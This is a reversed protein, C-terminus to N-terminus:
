HCIIDSASQWSEEASGTAHAAVDFVAVTPEAGAARFMIVGGPTETSQRMEELAERSDWVSIIRSLTSDPASHVLFTQLLQPPLLETGAAYAQELAVWNKPAVHAELITMVM